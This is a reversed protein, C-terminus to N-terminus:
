RGVSDLAIGIEEFSATELRLVLGRLEEALEIAQAVSEHMDMDVRLTPQVSRSSRVMPSAGTASVVGGAFKIKARVGLTKREFAGPAVPWGAYQMAQLFEEREGERV